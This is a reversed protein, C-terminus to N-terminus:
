ALNGVIRVDNANGPTDLSAVIVPSFPNSVNVVQLGTAGAAVYAFKGSVDVTNAFGPIAVFSLPIPTFQSYLHTGIHSLALCVFSVYACLSRRRRTRRWLSMCNSM